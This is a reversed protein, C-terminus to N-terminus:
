PPLYDEHMPHVLLHDLSYTALIKQFKLSLEIITTIADTYTQTNSMM